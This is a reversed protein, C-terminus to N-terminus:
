KRKFPIMEIVDNWENKFLFTIATMYTLVGVAIGILLQIYLNSSILQSAHVLLWMAFSVCFFPLIDGMQKFFGVNILKGTYYTNIFLCMVSSFIMGYCMIVLGFPITVCLVVIGLIKKIIELRLFLDSRGKVQLLGVNMSHIPYWMMGFCIIALLHSCYEWKDGIIIIILPHAIASLGLMLPFVIFASLKIIRRYNYALREDDNQLKCLAPYSVKEVIGTLNSSPFTSFHSARTYHGLESASFVKGIIIPYINNYITEMLAAVLIKAGFGFLERFSRWSYIWKPFWSSMFWLIGTNVVANVLQQVVLAWVGYGQYAIIIGAIGSIAAATLSAKAQSKFDIKATYIVRQVVAFSNIIIILCLVRMIPELQPENYFEAVFPALIYFIAYIIGSVAINFYFVTSVDKETRDQKRILASSFGSDILTQAVAMFIALMGILGYDSPTLLRAMILMILFSVGQVSFREITGWLLGNVTKQKLESM